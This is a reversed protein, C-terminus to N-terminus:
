LWVVTSLAFARSWDVDTVYVPIVLWLVVCDIEELVVGIFVVIVGAFLLVICCM